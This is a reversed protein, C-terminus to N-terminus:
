ILRNVAMDAAKDKEDEIDQNDGRLKDNREPSNTGNYNRKRQAQRKNSQGHTPSRNNVKMKSEGEENVCNQFLVESNTM